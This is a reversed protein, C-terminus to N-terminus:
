QDDPCDVIPAPRCRRDIAVEGVILTLAADAVRRKAVVVRMEFTSFEIQNVQDVLEAQEPKSIFDDQYQFGQPLNPGFLSGAARAM